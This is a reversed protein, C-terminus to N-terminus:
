KRKEQGKPSNNDGRKTQEALSPVNLLDIGSPVFKESEGMAVSQKALADRM